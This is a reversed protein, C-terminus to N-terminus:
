LRFSHTMRSKEMEKINWKISLWKLNISCKKKKLKSSEEEHFKEKNEQFIGM